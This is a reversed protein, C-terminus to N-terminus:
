TGIGRWAEGLALAMETVQDQHAIEAAEVFRRVLWEAHERELPRAQFTAGYTLLVDRLRSGVLLLRQVITKQPDRLVAILEGIANGAARTSPDDFAIQLLHLRVQLESVQLATDREITALNRARMGDLFGALDASPSNVSM